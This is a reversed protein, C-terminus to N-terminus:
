KKFYYLYLLIGIAVLSLSFVVIGSTSHLHGSSFGAIAGIIIMLPNLINRLNSQNQPKMTEM